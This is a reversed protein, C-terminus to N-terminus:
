PAIGDTRFIQYCDALFRRLLVMVCSVVHLFEPARNIGEGSRPPNYNYLVRATSNDLLQIVVLMCLQCEVDGGCLSQFMKNM